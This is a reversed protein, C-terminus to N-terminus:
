RYYIILMSDMPFTIQNDSVQGYIEVIFDVYPKQSGM